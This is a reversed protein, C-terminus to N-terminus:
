AEGSSDHCPLLFRLPTMLVTGFFIGEAVREGGQLVDIVSETKLPCAADQFVAFVRSVM